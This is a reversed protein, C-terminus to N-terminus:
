SRALRMALLSSRPEAMVRESNRARAHFAALSLARSNPHITYASTWRLPRGAGNLNTGDGVAFALRRVSFLLLLLVMDSSSEAGLGIVNRIESIRATMATIM